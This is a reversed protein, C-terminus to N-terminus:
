RGFQVRFPDGNIGPATRFDDWAIVGGLTPAVLANFPAIVPGTAPGAGTDIRPDTFLWTVGADISSSAFVHAVGAVTKQYAVVLVNSGAFVLKPVTVTGTVASGATNSARVAASFLTGSNLSRAMYVQAGERHDEWAVFVRDDNNAATQADVDITPAFSSSVESAPDDLIQEALWAPNATASNGGDLSRSFMVDSGGGSATSVDQWTAYLNNGVAILEPFNGDRVQGADSDLRDEAGVVLAGGTTDSFNAFVDFTNGARRERWVFEFRNAASVAVAPRGANPSAGSGVNVTRVAALTVGSDSSARSLVNRALTGTNLQEWAVVFRSGDTSTGVDHNFNDNTTVIDQAASFAGGSNTSRRLRLSRVNGGSFDEYVVYVNTGAAAIQPVVCATTGDTLKIGAGFTAGGDTSARFIIESKGDRLDSWAVYVNRGVPTGGYAITVDFSHSAGAANAGGGGLNDLRLEGGAALCGESADTVNGDCDTNLGDGCREVAPTVEGACSGFAGGVCTQSGGVCTGVGSTGAPGTYCAQTLTEDVMGDCDDDFNNCAEAVPVVQGACAGGFVGATCSQAGGHCLGVGSTGAPGTYCAQTIGEDKSGDCDDDANNCSEVGPTTQGVCTGFTGASCTQTGAACIGVGQTGGPGTYCSQTVGEDTSGNCNDDLNNCTEAGPTIQGTCTPSFVGASCTRAGSVCRGVGNTGAPGTYCTQTVTEDTMGDCDDDVNNCLEVVPTVQGVCAGSFAGASCTQTGGHCAGVGTTGGPGTYCAQTVGEDVSGDCDDDLNNCAEVGPLTQGTCAGSFVGGTCTQTGGSCVGVGSTGAPGTYCTQTVGEDIMGDCDDDLGNCTEIGPTVQAVCAGSFAGASCTQNGGHCVGVGSTGAPGTYCTQTVGEDVSGNCNDDINNCSEVGPTVQGTCAGSFTGNSCSQAGGRCAGVGSTGAPGTYCAQTVGEDKAGDCNDDLNNCTETGPTVQGVCAGSFAGASCTQTGSACVGVGLTGGPGGYCSQTVGEDVSGNCNDDINNCSEAGPLTQGTCAGFAGAACSQSGAACRGVNQTGAPGTYCAQSVSEDVSGNCNNDKNDCIEVVPTIQGVCAGSFTGASCAQNGARCLGVNQTGAPGTYCAQTVGDDVTGNCNDDINNCSEGGPLVQGTCPGSFTGASCAQTGPACRGVNQTGAPGTYCSQNVGEDTSGNCNDDRNNCSESGPLVQGVCPGFTGSTCTHNGPACVGVGQTGAPGSYCGGTINEDIVGDCDDDQNNCTETGPTLGGQCVRAGGMCVFTGPVCAGVDSGCPGGVDVAGVDITNDCDNDIGDCIESTPGVGGTCVIAGNTCTNTGHVCAGTDLGCPMGLSPDTPSEDTQNDCDDDIGNCVEATPGIERLCMRTGSVCAFIGATCNGVAPSCVAGVDTPNEDTMGDCDDDLGNCTESAPGPAGVCRLAGSVCTVTGTQTCEGVPTGGPSNNCTAGGGPNSQDVRGDCDNDVGDCKEVGGNTPTCAYECGNLQTGDIDHFGTQCDTAPNFLCTGMSCRPTAHPFSCTRGCLGCNAPDMSTDLTEDIVGDCDNDLFDCIEVGGNTPSCQYECGDAQMHNADHFGPRCDVLPDFVCDGPPDPPPLGTPVCHPTAQFFGCVHNCSGCNQTDHALDTTEDTTGNCNNDLTDCVENGMNSQFCAYECGNSTDFPDGPEADHDLDINGPFCDHIVCQGAICETRTGAKACTHGCVGCNLEDGQLDFTEDVLGDCDDDNGNCVEPAGVICGADPQGGDIHHNGGDGDGGDGNGDGDGGDRACNLCYPDVACGSGALALAGGLLAALLWGRRRGRRVVLVVAGALGFWLLSSAGAGRQGAAVSCGGGGTALIENEPSADPTPLVPRNFCDGHRCIQDGPCDVGECPNPACHGTAPDCVETAMSCTIHACPDGVCMGTSTNCVNGVGCDTGCGNAHCIGDHCEEGSACHTDACSLVCDGARCFQDADPCHVGACPDSQCVGASDCFQGASCHAPFFLCNDPVCLGDSPRCVSGAPCANADVRLSCATVCVGVSCTMAEGAQNPPCIVGFCPDLVCLQSDTDCMYGQPCPFEGGQCPAACQGDICTGNACPNNEDVNGDCDDDLNNCIETTPTVGGVCQIGGSICRTKGPECPPPFNGCDLGVGAPDDDITGDCDDDVGNCQEPSGGTQGSCVMMGMVCAFQGPTCVGVNTGCRAGAGLVNDDVIGNCDNDLLDCIEVSPGNGGACELAGSVCVTSGFTCEGEESPGCAAGVDTPSNDVIGNCDDDLNNCREPTPGTGGQCTPVGFQCVNHGFNCEGEDTGCTAGEDVLGGGIDGPDGTHEDILGDCDDDKGNCTEPTAGVAGVCVPAAAICRLRGASCEGVDNGCAGMDNLGEDIQGDCDDDIGNCLEPTGGSGSGGPDSSCRTSTLTACEIVGTGCAGVGDCTAGLNFGDDVVGDCDDDLGNCLETGPAGPSVNCVPAGAVCITAGNRACTGTGVSCAVGVNTPSEDVTGNCNDDLGNCLEPNTATNDSCVIAGATCSTTGEPCLDADAGDCAVGGGPNGEDIQGNCNDDVGNCTEVNNGTNDSCVLVGGQCSLTGENCLDSDSGDCAAGGGPNGEDIAGDCDDDLGNCIEVNTATNDNCVLAGATCVITGEACADGDPGDCAAGGGPNGEDTLGDCDDDLGNCTEVNNGTTDSCVLVGGTCSLTGELCLDADPGDCSGGGGPNGEDIAGDCDDDAGNCTEVTTGTADNCVLLGGQCVTVGEPCLDGDTGDCAAGGGPNGEDTLGDCDDDAGNCTEVNNGTTDTCTVVGGSCLTVGEPCLDADSGDCAIGGGPNGEDISGDCDDDVGNCTEAITGTNDSCVILGGTCSTTGELCADGDPGDCAVGGGPNGEDTMGNCNDDVGNCTEVNTGTADNCTIAGSSCVTVGENCLDLDVGDCAVNIGTPNDDITGNCNDDKNNCAETAPMVTSQCKIQAGQCITAGTRCEGQKNGGVCTMTSGDCTCAAGTGAVGGPDAEDIFGDCDNDFGDCVELSPSCPPTLGTVAIMMDEFDNDGGRFLDEFGFYFRQTFTKSTYILDHVFDGDNNLERQTFYIRGFFRTGAAGAFDGCNDANGGPHGEPTILYFGIFGGKYRNGTMETAFNITATNPAEANVVYGTAEGTHTAASIGCGLIPHLNATNTVDDGVNYYGFSNEFGAGEAVDKFTVNGVTNPLFIEPQQAADLVANTNTNGEETNLCIQINGICANGVMVPLITGDVQTVTAGAGAAVTLIIVAVAGRWLSKTSRMNQQSPEWGPMKDTPRTKQFVSSRTPSFAVWACVQAASRRAGRWVAM